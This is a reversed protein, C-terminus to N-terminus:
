LMHSATHVNLTALGPKTVMDAESLGLRSVTAGDAGFSRLERLDDLVRTTNMLSLLASVSAMIPQNHIHAQCCTPLRCIM